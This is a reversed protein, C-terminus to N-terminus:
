KIIPDDNSIVLKSECTKKASVHLQYFEYMSAIRFVHMTAALVSTLAYLFLLYGFASAIATLADLHFYERYHDLYPCYFCLSKAVIAFLLALIQVIIFHVFTACLGVYVTPQEANEEPEALLERFREDGFGIFIAFGGLTFGLLNPLVTIVDEWWNESTWRHFTVAVLIVAIHLYPSGLLTSWRGYARWYRGFIQGVGQYQNMM